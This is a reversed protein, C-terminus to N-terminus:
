ADLPGAGLVERASQTLEALWLAILPILFM